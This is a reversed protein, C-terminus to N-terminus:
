NYGMDVSYCHAEIIDLLQSQWIYLDGLHEVDLQVM